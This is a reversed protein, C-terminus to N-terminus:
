SVVEQLTHTGSTVQWTPGTIAQYQKSKVTSVYHWQSQCHDRTATILMWGRQYSDQYRMGKNFDVLRRSLEEPNSNALYSEMGPSTVSTTAFEVAVPTSEGDPTLEFAWANHSDGALSIPNRAHHKLLQLYRQRCANYGDWADSNFPLGLQGLMVIGNIYEPLKGESTAMLDRIEPSKVEGTIIQQGLIQWTSHSNKQLEDSLWAEQTLGLLQRDPDNLLKARVQEVDPLFAFGEPLNHPDLTQLQQWDLLPKPPQQRLDFPVTLWQIQEPKLKALAGAELLATAKGTTALQSTDFAIQQWIMDAQYDFQQSRGIIRTDLMYLSVLNGIQFSRYTLAPNSADQYDRIPLWERYAQIAAAKRQQWDGESEPQHNEAGTMYADNALEHDDWVCIFPHQAHAAQLDPDRRYLSYRARYDDLAIIEHEPQLRREGAALSHDSYGENNYEYIYDGLHLVATLEDQQAIERYVNFYGYGFNSCSVVALRTQEIDGIPLTRTRGLPSKEHGLQFQYYYTTDPELGAVDVKVTYDRAASTSAAGSNVVRKFEADEALRWQVKFAEQPQKANATIRTWLIVSDQLPDGSAVGHEFGAASSSGTAVACGNLLTASGAVAGLHGIFQRRNLSKM